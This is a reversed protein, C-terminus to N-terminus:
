QVHGDGQIYVYNGNWDYTYTNTMLSCDSNAYGYGGPTGSFGLGADFENGSFQFWGNRELVGYPNVYYLMTGTKDYTLTDVYMYGYTDFFCMDDVPTGAISMTVNAFDSFVEHGNSDFYIVHVGDPHYTLRDQMPTGDAQLYYTYTGDSFFSNRVMQGSSLYYHTGDWTGGNTNINYYKSTDADMDIETSGAPAPTVAPAPTATPSTTIVPAPIPTAAPTPTATPAPTYTAAPTPTVVPTPTYTAAPTPTATPTPTYTAAPTPAPTATPAPTLQPIEATQITYGCMWCEEHKRGPAVTSADYDVVWYGRYHEAKGTVTGDCGPATCERWHYQADYSWDKSFSHHHPEAVTKMQAAPEAGSCDITYFRMGKDSDCTYWVAKGNWVVPVCDSIRAGDATNWTYIQTLQQGAGNILCYKVSYTCGNGYGNYYNNSDVVQEWLLLYKDDAVKVFQPTYAQGETYDTVQVTNWGTSQGSRSMAAVYINRPASASIQNANSSQDVSSYAVLYHDTSVQYGGVSVGTANYAYSDQSNDAATIALVTSKVVTGKLAEAQGAGNLYQFWIIERPYADGLDVATLQGDTTDVFQDFSHSVYGRSSNSVGTVYNTLEMTQENIELMVNAQHGSYMEHSTRVFLNGGYEALRCNGADFPITTDYGTLRCDGLREWKKTYKVIRFVETDNSADANNQGFVIWNYQEGRFFAGFVSLEMPVSSCGTLNLDADYNELLIAGDAYELRTLTGDENPILYSKITKACYNYRSRGYANASLNNTFTVEANQAQVSVNEQAYVVNTSGGLVGLATIVAAMKWLRQYRKTKMM